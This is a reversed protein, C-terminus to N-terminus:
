GIIIRCTFRASDLMEVATFQVSWHSIKIGIFFNLTFLFPNLSAKFIRRAIIMLVPQQFFFSNILMGLILSPPQMIKLMAPQCPNYVIAIPQRLPPCFNVIFLTVQQLFSIVKFALFM